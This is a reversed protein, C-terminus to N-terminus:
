RPKNLSEREYDEPITVHVVRGSTTPKEVEEGNLVLDIGAANGIMLEFGKKATWQFRRGPQFIYERPDKDDIFIKVWTEERIIAKLILEPAIIETSEVPTTYKIPKNDEELVEPAKKILDSDDIIEIDSDTQDLKSPPEIMTNNHSEQMKELKKPEIEVTSLKKPIVVPDERISHGKWLFYFSSMALLLFVLMIFSVKKSKAPESLPKPSSIKVPGTEQYLAMVKEEDLGLTRAYSRVFGSIFVPSPLKDWSENEMAELVPQRVMTIESVHAYSLGQKEREDRLLNGITKSPSTAEGNEQDPKVDHSMVKDTSHHHEKNNMENNM